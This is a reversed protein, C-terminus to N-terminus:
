QMQRKELMRQNSGLTCQQETLDVPQALLKALLKLKMQHSQEVRHLRPPRPRLPLAVITKM